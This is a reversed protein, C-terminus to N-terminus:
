LVPDPTRERQRTNPVGDIPQIDGLRHNRQHISPVDVGVVAPDCGGEDLTLRLMRAATASPEPRSCEDSPREIRHVVRVAKKFRALGDATGVMTM